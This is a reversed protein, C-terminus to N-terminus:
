RNNRSLLKGLTLATFAETLSALCFVTSDTTRIGGRSDATGYGKTLVIQGDRLLGLNIAPIRGCTMSDLVFRDIRRLDAEDLTRANAGVLFLIFIWVCAKSFDEM